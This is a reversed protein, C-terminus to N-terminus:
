HPRGGKGPQFNGIGLLLADGCQHILGGASRQQRFRFRGDTMVPFCWPPTMAASSLAYPDIMMRPARSFLRLFTESSMGFRRIETNVPTEPEPLDESTNPVM